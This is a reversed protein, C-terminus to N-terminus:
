VQESIGVSTTVLSPSPLAAPAKSGGFSFRPVSADSAAPVSALMESVAKAVADGGAGSGSGFRFVKAVESVTGSAGGVPAFPLSGFGGSNAAASVSPFPTTAARTVTTPTGHSGGGAAPNLSFSFPQQAAASDPTNEQQQRQAM